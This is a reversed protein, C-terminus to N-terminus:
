PNLSVYYGARGRQVLLVVTERQSAALLAERYQDATDVPASNVQRLVDGPEIGAAAAAGGRRVETVVLGRNTALGYRRALAASNEEVVLGLWTESLSQAYGAPIERAVVEVTREGAERAVRFRLRSGV